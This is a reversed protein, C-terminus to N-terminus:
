IGVLRLIIIAIDALWVLWEIVGRPFRRHNISFALTAAGLILLILEAATRM